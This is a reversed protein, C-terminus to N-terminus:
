KPWSRASRAPCGNDSIAAACVNWRRAIRVEVRSSLPLRQAATGARGSSSVILGAISGTPDAAHEVPFLDSYDHHYDDAGGLEAAYVCKLGCWRWAFRLTHKLGRVADAGPAAQLLIVYRPTVPALM